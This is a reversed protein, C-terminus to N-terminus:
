TTSHYIIRRACHSRVALLDGINAKGLYLFVQYCLQGVQFSCVFQYVFAERLAYPRVSMLM